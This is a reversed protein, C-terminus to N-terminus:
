FPATSTCEVDEKTIPHRFRIVKAHVCVKGGKSAAAIKEQLDASARDAPLTAEGLGGYPAAEGQWGYVTDRVIPHGSAACHVNLQHTRGSISTLIVRTVPLDDDGNLSERALVQYHTTAAKPAELLKRGVIEPDLELLNRQHEDTSVRMYPPHEYDRMLPLSILGEDQPLHGCLLAEYQRTVKRTRFLANMARVAEMSKAMVILGSTDAGLRHVIM